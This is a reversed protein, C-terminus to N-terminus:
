AAEPQHASSWRFQDATTVLGASVPNREIYGCIRQFEADSRVAHDYSEDQWFPRGQRGLMQNARYATFGKLPGLWHTAVVRPTVLLHVHNPMIVFCHLQYRQFRLTEM